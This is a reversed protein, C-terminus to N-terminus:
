LAFSVEVVVIIYVLLGLTVLALVSGPHVQLWPMRVGPYSHRLEKWSV